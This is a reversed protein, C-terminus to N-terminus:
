YPYGEASEDVEIEAIHTMGAKVQQIVESNTLTALAEFSVPRGDDIDEDDEDHKKKRSPKINEV